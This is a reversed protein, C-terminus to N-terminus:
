PEPLAALDAADQPRGAAAKMARLHALSCIWVSMEDLEAALASERLEAYAPLGPLRQIVDLGGLRTDLTLNGGMRLVRSDSPPDFGRGAATPLTAQLRSAAVVLRDLNRGDPAPVLDLDQTMRVYGHVGVAVGGIVVYQVHEAALVALLERLSLVSM